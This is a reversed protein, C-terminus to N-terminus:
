ATTTGARPRRAARWARGATEALGVAGFGLLLLYSPYLYLYYRPWGFPTWALVGLVSVATWVLFAAAASPQRARLESIARRGLEVAGIAVLAVSAAAFPWRGAGRPLLGPDVFSIRGLAAFKDGWDTLAFPIKPDGFPASGMAFMYRLHAWTDHYLFPNIGVVVLGAVLLALLGAAALRARQHWGTTRGTPPRAALLLTVAGIAVLALTSRLKVSLALGAAAGLGVTVLWLRRQSASSEVWALLAVLALTAFFVEIVDTMALRSMYFFFPHLALLGAALWGALWSGLQAGLLLLLGVTGVGTLAVALRAAATVAPPAVHGLAKNEELTLRFAYHYPGGVEQPGFGHAYLSAGMVYKGLVPNRAGFTYFDKSWTRADATPEVFALRFSREAFHIWNGEDGAYGGLEELGATYYVGSVVLTATTLLGAALVRMRRDSAKSGLFHL